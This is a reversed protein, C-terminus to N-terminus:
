AAPPHRSRRRRCQQRIWRSRRVMRGFYSKNLGLILLFYHVPDANPPWPRHPQDGQAPHDVVRMQLEDVHNCLSAFAPRSAPSNHPAAFVPTMVVCSGAARSAPSASTTTYAAAALRRGASAISSMTDIRRAPLFTTDHETTGNTYGSPTAAPNVADSRAAAAAPPADNKVVPM